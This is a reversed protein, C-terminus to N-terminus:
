GTITSMMAPTETAPMSIKMTGMKSFINASRPPSSGNGVWNRTSSDLAITHSPGSMTTRTITPMTQHLLFLFVSATRAKM